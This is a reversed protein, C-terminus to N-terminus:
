KNSSNNTATNTSTTITAGVKWGIVSPANPNTLLLGIVKILLPLVLRLRGSSVPIQVLIWGKFAQTLASRARQRLVENQSQYAEVQANLVSNATEFAQKNSANSEAVTLKSQTEYYLTNMREVEITKEKLLERVRDLETKVADLSATDVATKTITAEASQPVVSESKPITPIYNTGGTWVYKQDQTEWWLNNTEVAEGEVFAVVAVTQKFSFVGITDASLTPATRVRLGQELLVQVNRTHPYRKGIGPNTTVPLQKVKQQWYPFEFHPRDKFRTWDVGLVFGLKRAIPDILAYLDNDYSLQKNKQFALDVALGYNHPSQGPAAMTKVQGVITRGSAYLAAQEDLSRYGDTIFFTYGTHKIAEQGQELLAKVMPQFDKHLDEINRSAM